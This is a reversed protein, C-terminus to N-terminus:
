CCIAGLVFCIVGLIIAGFFVYPIWILEIQDHESM